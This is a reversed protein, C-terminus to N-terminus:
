LAIEIQVVAQTPASGVSDTHDQIQVFGKAIGKVRQVFGVLRYKEIVRCQLFPKVCQPFDERCAVAAFRFQHCEFQQVLDNFWLHRLRPVADGQMGNCLDSLKCRFAPDNKATDHVVVHQAHRHQCLDGVRLNGIREVAILRQDKCM